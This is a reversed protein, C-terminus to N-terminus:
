AVFAPQGARPMWSIGVWNREPRHTMGSTDVIRHTTGREDEIVHVTAPNDVRFIRGDDYTYVRYSESSVDIEKTM